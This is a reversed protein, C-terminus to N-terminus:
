LSIGLLFKYIYVVNFFIYFIKLLILRLLMDYGYLLFDVCNIKDLIDVSILYMSSYLDIIM